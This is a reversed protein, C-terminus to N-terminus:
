PLVSGELLGDTSEVYCVVVAGVSDAWHERSPSISGVMLASDGVLIGLREAEASCSEDGLREKRVDGPYDASPLPLAAFAESLHQRDCPRVPVLTGAADSSTQGDSDFCDGRELSSYPTMTELKGGQVLERESYGYSTEAVCSVIRYGDYAWYEEGYPAYWWAYWDDGAADGLLVELEADCYRQSIEDLGDDGPYPSEPLTVDAYVESTHPGTCSVLDLQGTEEDLVTSDFCDGVRLDEAYVTKLVPETDEPETDEPSFDEPDLIGGNAIVEQALTWAGWVGGGVLALTLFTAGAIIAWLYRGRRPAPLSTAPAAPPTPAPQAVPVPASGSPPAFPSLEPDSM